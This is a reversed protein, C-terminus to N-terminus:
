ADEMIEEVDLSFSAYVDDIKKLMEDINTAMVQVWGCADTYKHKSSLIDGKKYIIAGNIIECKQYLEEITTIRTVRGNLMPLFVDSVCSQIPEIKSPMDGLLIDILYDEVSFGYMISFNELMHDGPTRWAFECIVPNGNDSVFVELHLYGTDLGLSGVILETMKQPDFKWYEQSCGVALQVFKTKNEAFSLNTFPLWTYLNSWIDGNRVIADICWIKYPQYKEAIYKESSFDLSLKELDEINNIQYVEMSSVGIRWKIIFPYGWKDACQFLDSSSSILCYEACKLGISEIFQKMVYKDRVVTAQYESLAGPLNIARAMKQIYVQNFESDNYFVDVRDCIENLFKKLRRCERDFDASKDVVFTPIKRTIEKHNESFFLCNSFRILILRIDTRKVLAKALANESEEVYVLVKM